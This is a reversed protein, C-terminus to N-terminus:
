YTRHFQEQQRTTLVFLITLLEAGQPASSISSVHVHVPGHDCSERDESEDDGSRRHRVRSGVRTLDGLAILVAIANRVVTTVHGTVVGRHVGVVRTIVVEPIETVTANLSRNARDVIEFLRTQRDAVVLDVVSRIETVVGEHVSTPDDVGDVTGTEIVVTGVHVEDYVLGVPAVATVRVPSDPTTPLVVNQGDGTFAVENTRQRSGPVVDVLGEFVVYCM